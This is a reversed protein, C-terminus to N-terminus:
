HNDCHYWTLKALITSQRHSDLWNSDKRSYQNIFKNDHKNYFLTSNHKNKQLVKIAFSM